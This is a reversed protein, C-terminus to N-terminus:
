RHMVSHCTEGCFQTSDMYDVGGYAALGLIAANAITAFALTWALRAARAGERPLRELVKSFGGHRRSVVLLGLPMLVLGLLFLGPLILFIVIGFYPNESSLLLLGVFLLASATTLVVGISTLWHVVSLSLLTHFFSKM